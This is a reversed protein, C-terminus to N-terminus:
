KGGAQKEANLRKAENEIKEKEKIMDNESQKAKELEDDANQLLAQAQKELEDAQPKEEPKATAAINKAEEFKIQAAEKKSEAEKIQVKADSLKIEIDQLFKVNNQILTALQQQRAEVQQPDVPVPVPEPIDPVAAPKFDSTSHSGTGKSQLIVETPKSTGFFDTGTKFKLESTTSGAGKLELSDTQDDKFAGLLRDKEEAFKKQRALELEQQLQLQHQKELEEAQKRKIANERDIKDQPSEPKTGDLIYNIIKGLANAIQQEPDGGSSGGSRSCPVCQQYGLPVQADRAQRARLELAKRCEEMSSYLCPTVSYGFDIKYTEAAVQSSALVVLALFIVKAKM